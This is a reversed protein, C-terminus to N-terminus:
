IGVGRQGGHFLFIIQKWVFSMQGAQLVREGQEIFQLIPFLIGIGVGEFIITAVSLLLLVLIQGRKIKCISFLRRVAEKEQAFGKTKSDM